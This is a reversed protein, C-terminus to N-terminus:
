LKQGAAAGCSAAVGFSRKGLFSFKRIGAGLWVNPKGSNGSKGSKPIEPNRPGPPDPVYGRAGGEVDRVGDHM